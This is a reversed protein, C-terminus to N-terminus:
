IYFNLSVKNRNFYVNLLKRTEDDDYSPNKKKLYTPAQNIMANEEADNKKIMQVEWRSYVNVCEKEGDRENERNSPVHDKDNAKEKAKPKM